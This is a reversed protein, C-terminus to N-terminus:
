YVILKSNLQKGELTTVRCYYIGAKLMSINLQFTKGSNSAVSCGYVLTGDISFLEVKANDLIQTSYIFVFGKAPNPYLTIESELNKSILIHNFNLQNKNTRNNEFRQTMVEAGFVGYGGSTYDQNAIDLLTFYENDTLNFRGLAWSNLYIQNVTQLNKEILNVPLIAQNAVIAEDIRNESILKDINYFKAISTNIAFLSTKVFMFLMLSVLLFRFSTRGHTHQDELSVYYECKM